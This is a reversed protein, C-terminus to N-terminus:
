RGSTEWSSGLTSQRTVLEPPVVASTAAQTPDDIRQLLLEMGHRGVADFNQRVTTLPPTFFASDPSDDFGAVLVDDPIRLGREHFARLVGLAMQDNAVFVARVDGREALLQGNAYGSAPTWDGRLVEPATIAARELESRWGSVRGQAELWDIPGAVHWVTGVKRDLLHRTALRAGEVQDVCVVPHGGGDGGEVVVLPLDSPVHRLAEVAVRQPAIAIIGEVFQSGLREVAHRIADEDVDEVNAVSVFYGALRAAQEIAYLTNAPGFLTTTFSVVGIGRTRRTVLARAASNPRYDLQEIAALIRDRTAPSVSPHENLVRSVTQHSVGALRAVDAMVAPRRPSIDNRTM